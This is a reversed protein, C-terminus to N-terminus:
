ARKEWADKIKEFFNKSEPKSGPSGEGQMKALERFLEKEKESLRTPIIVKVKVYQDGRGRGRVDPM